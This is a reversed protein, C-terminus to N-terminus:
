RAAGPFPKKKKKYAEENFLNECKNRMTCTTRCRDKEYAFKCLNLQSANEASGLMALYEALKGCASPNEASEIRMPSSM